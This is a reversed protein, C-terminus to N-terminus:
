VLALPLSIFTERDVMPDENDEEYAGGDWFSQRVPVVGLLLHAMEQPTTRRFSPPFLTDRVYTQKAYCWGMTTILLLFGCFETYTISHDHDSDLIDFCLSLRDPHSGTTIMALLIFWERLGLSQYEDKFLSSFLRTLLDTDHIPRNFFTHYHHSFLEFSLRPQPGLGYPDLSSSSSSSSSPSFPSAPFPNQMSESDMLLKFAYVDRTSLYNNRRLQLIDYIDLPYHEMIFHQIQEESLKVKINYWMFSVVGGVLVPLIVVGSNKRWWKRWTTHKKKKYKRFTAKIIPKIFPLTIFNEKLRQIAEQLGEYYTL